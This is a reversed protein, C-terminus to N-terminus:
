IISTAGQSMALQSARSLTAQAWTSSRAATEPPSVLFCNSCPSSQLRARFNLEPREPPLMENGVRALIKVLGAIHEPPGTPLIARLRSEVEAADIMTIVETNDHRKQNSSLATSAQDSAWIIGSVDFATLRNWAM